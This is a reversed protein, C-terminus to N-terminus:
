FLQRLISEPADLFRKTIKYHETDRYSCHEIRGDRLYVFQARPYAMIIPSHTVIIIQAHETEELDHLVTLLSLQRMPSLAAEPEDMIYMGRGSIRNGFLSLFAEGHSQAHLSRGGYPTLADSGAEAALEDVYSAFNYFSEARM